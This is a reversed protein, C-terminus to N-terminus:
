CSLSLLLLLCFWYCYSCATAAALLCCATPLLLMCYCYASHLLCDCYGTANVTRLLLLPRCYCYRGAIASDTHVLLLLLCVCYCEASAIVTPLLLLVLCYCCCYTIAIATTRMVAGRSGWGRLGAGYCGWGWLVGRGPPRPPCCICSPVWFIFFMYCANLTEPLQTAMGQLHVLAIFMCCHKVQLHHPLFRQPM